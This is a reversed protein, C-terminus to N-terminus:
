AYLRLFGFHFFVCTGWEESYCQKCCSSCPLSRSTWQCIFPCHYMSICLPINSLWLFSHMQIQELSTSSGSGVICLSTLFLFTLIMYQCVYISDSSIAGIFKSEPCCHLFLCLSCVQPCPPLPPPPRPSTRLSWCPFECYWAHSLCAVPICQTVGPVSDSARGCSPPHPPAPSPLCPVHHAWPQNKNM